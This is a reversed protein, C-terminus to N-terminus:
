QTMQLMLNSGRKPSLHLHHEQPSKPGGGLTKVSALENGTNVFWTCRSALSFALELQIRPFPELPNTSGQSETWGTHTGPGRAELGLLAPMPQQRGAGRPM